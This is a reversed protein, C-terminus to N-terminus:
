PTWTFGASLLAPTGFQSNVAQYEVRFAFMDLHFQVGGGYALDTEGSNIKGSVQGVTTCTGSNTNVVCADPFYGAYSYSTRLRSVGLKGFLEVGWSLPLYAVGFAAAAHSHGNAGDFFDPMVPQGNFIHLYSSGIHTRGFDIYQVEAAVWRIPRIGVLVDWGLGDRAATQGPGGGGYPDEFDNQLTARGAEAGVYFGLPNGAAAAGSMTACAIFSLAALIALSRRVM